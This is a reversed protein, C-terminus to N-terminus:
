ASGEGMPQLIQLDPHCKDERDEPAIAGPIPDQNKKKEKESM